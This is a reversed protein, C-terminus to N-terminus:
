RRLELSTGWSMHITPKTQLELPLVYNENDFKIKLLEIGIEKEIILSEINEFYLKNVIKEGSYLRLQGSHSAVEIDFEVKIDGRTLNFSVSSYQWPIGEEIFMADCEFLYELEYLEPYIM